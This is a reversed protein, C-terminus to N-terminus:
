HKQSVLIAKSSSSPRRMRPSNLRPRNIVNRAKPSQSRAAKYPEKQLDAVMLRFQKTISPAPTKVTVDAILEVDDDFEYLYMSPYHPIDKSAKSHIASNSKQKQLTKMNERSESKHRHSPPAVLVNSMQTFEYIRSRIYSYDPKTNFRLSRLYSLTALLPTPIEKSSRSFYAQKADWVEDFCMGKKKLCFDWPLYGNRLYMAIFVLSELDDAATHESTIHGNLSLFRASGLINGRSRYRNSIYSPPRALGFDILYVENSNSGYMLNQPKIDRHILNANHMTELRALTQVLIDMMRESSMARRGKTFIQSVSQGLLQMAIYRKGGVSKSQYVIPFGPYTQLTRMANVEFETVSNVDGVKLAVIQGTNTDTAKYVAGFGGTGLVSTLKYHSFSQLQDDM